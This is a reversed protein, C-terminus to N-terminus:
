QRISTPLMGRAMHRAAHQTPIRKLLTPVGISKSGMCIRIAASSGTMRPDELKSRALNDQLMPLLGCWINPCACRSNEGLSGVAVFRIDTHPGPSREGCSQCVPASMERRNPPQTCSSMSRSPALVAAPQSCSPTTNFPSRLRKPLLVPAGRPASVNATTRARRRHM